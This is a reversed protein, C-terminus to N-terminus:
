TRAIGPSCDQSIFHGSHVGLETAHSTQIFQWYRKGRRNGRLYQRCRESLKGALGIAKPPTRVTPAKRQSAQGSGYRSLPECAPAIAAMSLSVAGRASCRSTTYKGARTPHCCQRLSNNRRASYFGAPARLKQLSDPRATIGLAPLSVSPRGSQLQLDYCDRYTTEKTAWNTGTVASLSSRDVHFQIASPGADPVM